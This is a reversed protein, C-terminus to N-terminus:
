HYIVKLAEGKRKRERESGKGKGQKAKGDWVFGINFNLYDIREYKMNEEERCKV